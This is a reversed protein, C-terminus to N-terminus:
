LGALVGPLERLSHALHTGHWTILTGDLCFVRGEGVAPTDAFLENLQALHSQDYAFPEDPLLIVEPQAAIVEAQPVRPYRTDRGGTPEAKGQGLDAELPYRRLREAFVNQGGMLRLLDSMYTDANFTIWWPVEHSTEQWLPCFYRFQPMSAAAEEAWDLTIELTQVRATAKQDRFLEAIKFLVDVAQRVSRPLTVWVPVGQAELAEVDELHNEEQNAIVLDPQLAVIQELNPNKPGGVRALNQVGEAPRTCYDTIGVLASGFGLDFLSETLSPVLSVVRQPAQTFYLLKKHGNGNNSM